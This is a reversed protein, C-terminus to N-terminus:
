WRSATPQEISPAAGPHEELQAAVAAAVARALPREPTLLM